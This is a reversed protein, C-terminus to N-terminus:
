RSTALSFWVRQGDFIGVEIFVLLSKADAENIEFCQNGEIQGGTFLEAFTDIDDPLVGCSEDYAVGQDGLAKFTLESFVIASDSGLYKARVRVMYFQHGESPPDNYSNEDLIQSAADAEAEVVTLEWHGSPDGTNVEITEGFPVPKARSGLLEEVPPTATAEPTPTTVSEGIMYGIFADGDRDIEYYFTLYSDGRASLKAEARCRLESTTREVEEITDDYLKLIRSSFTSEKEESLDIIAEVLRTDDCEIPGIEPTSEPSPMRTPTPMPTPTTTLRPTPTPMLIATPIPTLTPIPSATPTVAQTPQSTPEVTVEVETLNSASRNISEVDTPSECALTSVLTLLLVLAVICQRSPFPM